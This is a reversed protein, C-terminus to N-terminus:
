NQYLRRVESASLAHDYLRVDDILGKYTWSGDHRAGIAWGNTTANVGVPSKATNDLQGDVYISYIYESGSPAMTGVVHHWQDDQVNTNSKVFRDTGYHGFDVSEGFYDMMLGIGDADDWKSREVINQWSTKPHKVWCAVSLQQYNGQFIKGLSVYQRGGDLALARGKKGPATTPHNMPIGNHHVFIGSADKISSGDGDNLKWWGILGSVGAPDHNVLLQEVTWVSGAGATLIVAAVISTKVKTWAMIKLTTKILTLTSVGAVTGKAAITAALGAPAAQVSHTGISAILLGASVKVGRKIFFARLKEVARGIRKQTASPNAGMAAATEGISKGKFFRLVVANRDKEGLRAMAEELLPAMQDWAADPEADNITSQMYAEQERQLRRINTRLLNSSTLRATEYLWGELISGQRLRAAKRALIIFVAQTVEEAQDPNGLRRLAVSYVLDIHRRVLEAFAEDSNRAVYTELLQSDNLDLM